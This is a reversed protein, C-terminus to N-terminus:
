LFTLLDAKFKRLSSKEDYNAGAMASYEHGSPLALGKMFIRLAAFLSAKAKWWLRTQINRKEAHWVRFPSIRRCFNWLFTASDLDFSFAFKMYHLCNKLLDKEWEEWEDRHGFEYDSTM